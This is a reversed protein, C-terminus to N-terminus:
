RPPASRVAVSRAAMTAAIARALRKTWALRRLREADHRGLREGAPQGHHGRVRAAHGLDQARLRAAEPRQHRGAVRLAKADAMRSVSSRRAIEIRQSSRAQTSVRYPSWPRRRVPEDVQVIRDQCLMAPGGIGLADQAPRRAFLRRSAPSAGTTM